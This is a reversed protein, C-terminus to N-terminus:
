TPSCEALRRKLDAISSLWVAVDEDDASEAVLDRLESKKEVQAVAALARSTLAVPDTLKLTQLRSVVNHGAPWRPDRVAEESPRGALAAIVEAAAVTAEGNEWSADDLTKQLFEVRFDDTFEALWDLAADNQFPGM